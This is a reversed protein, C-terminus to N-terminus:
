GTPWSVSCDALIDHAHDLETGTLFRTGGVARREAVAVPVIAIRNLM